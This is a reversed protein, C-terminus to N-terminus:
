HTPILTLLARGYHNKFDALARSAADCDGDDCRAAFALVGSPVPRTFSRVGYLLQAVPERQTVRGGVRYQREVVWREGSPPAVTNQYFILEAGPAQRAYLNVYVEVTAAGSRYAARAEQSAGVYHPVWANGAPLPGQWHSALVPWDGLRPDSPPAADIARLFLTALLSLIVAAPASSQWLGIDSSTRAPAEARVAAQPASVAPRSLRRVLLGIGVVLVAFIIWGLSFHEVRVWYHQMHTLHGALIIILV